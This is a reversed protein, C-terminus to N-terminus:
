WTCPGFASFTSVFAFPPESGSILNKLMPSSVIPPWVTRASCWPMDPAGPM